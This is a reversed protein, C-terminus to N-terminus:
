EYVDNKSFNLVEGSLGDTNHLLLVIDIEHKVLYEEFNEEFFRFDIFHTEKFHYPMYTQLANSFSDVTVAVKLNSASKNNKFVVYPFDFTTLDAYSVHKKDIGSRVFSFRDTSLAGSYPSYYFDSYYNLDEIEYTCKEEDKSDIINMVFRNQSGIFKSDSPACYKKLEDTRLPEAMDPYSERLKNIIYTYGQHAGKYNWHHDTKYYFDTLEEENFDKIYDNKLNYVKIFDKNKDEISDIFDKKFRDTSLGMFLHTLLYQKDPLLFLYSDINNKKTIKKIFELRMKLYADQQDYVDKQKSPSLNIWNNKGISINNVEPLGIVLESQFFVKTVAERKFFQDKFFEEFRKSYDGKFFSTWTLDPRTALDRNEMESFAIEKKLLTITGLSIIMLLFFVIFAKKYRAHM